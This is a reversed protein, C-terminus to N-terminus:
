VQAAFCSCSLGMHISLSLLSTVRDSPLYIYQGIHSCFPRSKRVSFLTCRLSRRLQTGKRREHVQHLSRLLAHGIAACYLDNGTGANALFAVVPLLLM